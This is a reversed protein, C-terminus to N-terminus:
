NKKLIFTTSYYNSKIQSSIVQVTILQVSSDGLSDTVELQLHLSYHSTKNGVPFETTVNSQWGTHFVVVGFNTQYSFQYRLPWDSDAWNVCDITFETSIAEGQNPAVFCGSNNGRRFPPQNTHFIYDDAQFNEEDLWAIIHIKYTKNGM